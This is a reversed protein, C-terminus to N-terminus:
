LTEIRIFRNNTIISFQNFNNNQMKVDDIHSFDTGKWIIQSWKTIQSDMKTNKPVKM